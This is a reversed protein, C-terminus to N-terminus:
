LQLAQEAQHQATDLEGNLWEAEAAILLLRARLLGASRNGVAIAAAAAAAVIERRCNSRAHPIASARHWALATLLQLRAAGQAEPLAADWQALEDDLAFMDVLHMGESSYWGNNGITVTPAMAASKHATVACCHSPPPSPSFRCRQDVGSVILAIRGTDAGFREALM